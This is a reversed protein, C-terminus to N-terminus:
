LKRYYTRKDSVEGGLMEKFRMLGTIEGSVTPPPVAGLDMLKIGAKRCHEYIGAVVMTVPSYSSFEPLHGLFLTYLIRTNLLLCIAGGATQGDASVAYFEVSEPFTRIMTEIESWSMSLNYGRVQCNTLITDYISRRQSSETACVFRFGDRECKRLLQRRGQAMKDALNAADVPIAYNPETERVEFGLTQLAAWLAPTRAPEHAAPACIMSVEAVGETRLKECVMRLFTETVEGSSVAFAPGGFTARGPSRFHGPEVESFHIASIVEDDSQRRLVFYRNSGGPHLRFYRRTQFLDCWPYDPGEPMDTLLYDHQKTM